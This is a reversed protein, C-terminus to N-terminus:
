HIFAEVGNNDGSVFVVGEIAYESNISNIRSEQSMSKTDNLQEELNDLAKITSVTREAALNFSNLKSIFNPDAELNKKIEPFGDQHSIFKLLENRSEKSSIIKHELPRFIKFYAYTSLASVAAGMAAGLSIPHAEVCKWGDSLSSSIVKFGGNVWDKAQNMGAYIQEAARDLCKPILHLKACDSDKVARMLEELDKKTVQDTNVSTATM